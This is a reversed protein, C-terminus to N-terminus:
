FPEGLRGRKFADLIAETLVGSVREKQAESFPIEGEVAGPILDSKGIGRAMESKGDYLEKWKDFLMGASEEM